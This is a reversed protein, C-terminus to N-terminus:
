IKLDENPINFIDLEPIRLVKKLIKREYPVVMRAKSPCIMECYGCGSCSDKDVVIKNNIEKWALCLTKTCLKCNNCKSYDIKSYMKKYKVQGYEKIYKQSLGRMEQISNYNQDLMFNELFDYCKKIFDYGQFLIASSLEVTSAGLMILEVIQEPNSIGGTATIEIDRGVEKMIQYIRAVFRYASNINFPGHTGTFTYCNVGKFKPKGQNYIDPPAIGLASNVVTIGDIGEYILGKTFKELKGMDMDPTFKAIVPVRIEKKLAKIISITLRLNQGPVQLRSRINPCSLNVEIIEVGANILDKALEVWLNTNYIDRSHVTINAIIPVKFKKLKSILAIGEDLYNMAEHIAGLNYVCIPENKNVAFAMRVRNKPVNGRKKLNSIMQTKVLSAGNEVYKQFLEVHREQTHPNTPCQSAVWIPSKLNFGLFSTNIM